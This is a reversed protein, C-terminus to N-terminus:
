VAVLLSIVEGVLLVKSSIETGIVGYVGHHPLQIAVSWERNRHIDVRLCVIFVVRKRVEPRALSRAAETTDLWINWLIGLEAILLNNVVVPAM